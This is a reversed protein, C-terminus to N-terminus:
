KVSNGCGKYVTTNYKILVTREAKNGSGSETCPKNQVSITVSKNEAVTKTYTFGSEDNVKEFSDEIIVSDKGYDVILRLKNTSFEAIWGPETGIAKFIIKEDVKSLEEVMDMKSLSINVDSVTDKGETITKEGSSNVNTCSFLCFAVVSITITKIM